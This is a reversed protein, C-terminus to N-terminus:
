EVTSLRFYFIAGEDVTSEAWVQGNHRQIINKVIALGIGTGEFEAESHLRQFVNFLKHQYSPNFGVGNDRIFITTKQTHHLQTHESTDPPTKETVGIEIITKPRPQSYKLANDLLNSIVIRLLALDAKVTPLPDIQWEIDRNKINLLMNYRVDKILENLDIPKTEMKIRGCRSFTLLDDVLDGMKDASDLITQVYHASKPDLREKERNVLLTAFGHIHRLPARLDHSVSYAFTDLDNYAVQYQATREHVREELEANLKEIKAQAQKRHSIDRDIGILGCPNGNQDIVLSIFTDAWFVTGDKRYQQYQGQWFGNKRVQRMREKEEEEAVPKVILTISKGLVEEATYHYLSEAGKSWYIIHGELDTAVVSERVNNLLQAQLSLQTETEKRQTIDIIVLRCSHLKDQENNVPTMELHGWFHCGDQKLLKLEFSQATQTNLLQQYHLYFIDQNAPAISKSFPKKLLEKKHKGLLMAGTHNVELILGQKNLSFYGVPAFNYLDRYKDRMETLADQTQRLTENQAELEWQHVQLDYFLQQIDEDSLQKLNLSQKHINKEAQQRLQKFKDDDNM